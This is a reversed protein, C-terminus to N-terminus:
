LIRTKKKKFEETTSLIIAGSYCLMGIQLKPNDGLNLPGLYHTELQRPVPGGQGRPNGRFPSYSKSNFGADQIVGQSGRHGGQCFRPRSRHAYSPYFTNDASEGYWGGVAIIDRNLAKFPDEAQRMGELAGTGAFFAKRFFKKSRCNPRILPSTLLFM